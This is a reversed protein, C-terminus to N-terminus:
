GARCYADKSRPCYFTARGDVFLGYAAPVDRNGPYDTHPNMGFGCGFVRFSAAMGMDRPTDSGCAQRISAMGAPSKLDSYTVQLPGECRYYNERQKSCLVIGERMAIPRAAEEQKRKLEALRQAEAARRKEAEAAARAERQEREAKTAAEREALRAEEDRAKQEALRKARAAEAQVASDSKAKDNAAQRSAFEDAIAQQRANAEAVRKANEQARANAAAREEGERKRRTEEEAAVRLRGLELKQNQLDVSSQIMEDGKGALVNRTMENDTTMEVGKMAAGMVMGADGGAAAVVGGMILGGLWGSNGSARKEQAKRAALEAQAVRYQEVQRGLQEAMAPTMRRFTGLYQLDQGNSAIFRGDKLKGSTVSFSDHDARIVAYARKPIFVGGAIPVAQGRDFLLKDQKLEIIRESPESGASTAALNVARHNSSFSWKVTGNWWDGDLKRFFELGEAAQLTAMSPIGISASSAPYSMGSPESGRLSAAMPTGLATVKGASVLSAIKTDAKSGPVLTDFKMKGGPTGVLIFGGEPDRALATWRSENKTTAEISGDQMVRAPYSKRSWQGPVSLTMVNTSANREFRVVGRMVSTWATMEVADGNKRVTVPLGDGTEFDAEGIDALLGWQARIRAKEIAEAAAKAAAEAALRAAEKKAAGTKAAAAKRAASTTPRKPKADAAVHSSTVIFACAAAHAFWNIRM